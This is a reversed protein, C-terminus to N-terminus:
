RRKVCTLSAHRFAYLSHARRWEDSAEQAHVKARDTFSGLTDIIRSFFGTPEGM